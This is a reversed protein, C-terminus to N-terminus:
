QGPQLRILRNDSAAHLNRQYAIAVAEARSRAPLKELIHEIHKSVTKPAIVLRQAITPQDLGHALLQLVELERTTLEGRREVQQSSESPVLRRLVAIVRALLESGELPKTLYDDAGLLLGAEKDSPEIRDHSMFIIAVSEGYEDKLKRCVEYGSIDDLRVELLVLLPREHRAAALAQEGGSYTATRWGGRQLLGQAFNRQGDDSDVIM